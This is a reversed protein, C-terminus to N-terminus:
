TLEVEAPAIVRASAASGSWLPVQCAAAEWGHHVLRGHFPPEGVVNGTLRWRGADFGAPVEIPAGEPGPLLPQLAFMRQLVKGCERHVDRAAAGIQADSYNSLSEQIFDVFRAERQLAALLSIAESRVAAPKASPAPKAQPPPGPEREPKGKKQEAIGHSRVAAAGGRKSAERATKRRQLIDAVQRAVEASFLALFFIRLAFWIRRM